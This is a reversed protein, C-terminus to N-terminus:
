LRIDVNTSELRDFFENANLHPIGDSQLKVIIADIPELMRHAIDVLKKYYDKVIIDHVSLKDQRKKKNGVTIRGFTRVHTTCSTQPLKSLIM